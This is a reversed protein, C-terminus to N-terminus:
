VSQRQRLYQAHLMTNEVGTLVDARDLEVLLWETADLEIENDSLKSFAEGLEDLKSHVHNIGHQEALQHIAQKATLDSTVPIATM